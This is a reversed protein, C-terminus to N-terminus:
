GPSTRYHYRMELVYVATLVGIKMWFTWAVLFNLMGSIYLLSFGFYVYLAMFATLFRGECTGVVVMRLLVAALVSVLFAILLALWSGFLEVLVEPYGGAYQQGMEILQTAREWGLNQVMLMQISTNREPDIPDVFLAEWVSIPFSGVGADLDHWTSWWLEVPQVLLRQFILNFPDDYARVNVVSNLILWAIGLLGAILSVGISIRSCFLRRWMSRHPASPLRRSSSLAPMAALPLLFFSSFSYFASFRNGTLAFYACIALYLALFPFDFDRGTLRPRVFMMGMVGALLFGRSLLFHHFPGALNENYELRDIGALLPIPSRIVMDVYLVLVFLFTLVYVLTSVWDRGVDMRSMPLAIHAMRSPRFVYSVGAMVVLVSCAFLPMSAAGGVMSDLQESYIPGALDVYILSLTRTVLSFLLFFAALVAAPRHLVMWWLAILVAAAFLLTLM